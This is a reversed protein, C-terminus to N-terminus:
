IFYFTFRTIEKVFMCYLKEYYNLYLLIYIFLEIINSLWEFDPLLKFLTSHLDVNNM